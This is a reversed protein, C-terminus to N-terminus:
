SIAKLIDHFVQDPAQDANVHVLLGGKEYHAILPSTQKQYVQLREKVVDEADDPRQILRGQCKDCIGGKSPPSFHKNYMANCQECTLRGAIRKIIVEDAIRLDVVKVNAKGTLYGDLAEAQPMTRPFGDLLYGHMSDPQSVRDFLMDMVVSDPVLHGEDMYGKARRGLETEQSVNARFIDGTSIHPISMQKALRSAQTGKGSGPPGLFIIIKPHSRLADNTM